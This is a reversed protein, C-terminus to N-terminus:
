CTVWFTPTRCAGIIACGTECNRSDASQCTLVAGVGLARVRLPAPPSLTTPDVDEGSEPLEQVYIGCYRTHNKPSHRGHASVCLPTGDVSIHTNVVM